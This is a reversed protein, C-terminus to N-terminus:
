TTPYSLSDSLLAGSGHNGLKNQLLPTPTSVESPPSGHRTDPRMRSSSPLSLSMSGVGPDCCWEPNHAAEFLVCWTVACPLSSRVKEIRLFGGIEVVPLHGWELEVKLTRKLAAIVFSSFIFYIPAAIWGMWGDMWGDM